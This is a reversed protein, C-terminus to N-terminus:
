HFVRKLVILCIFKSSCSVLSDKKTLEDLCESLRLDMDHYKKLEDGLQSNM